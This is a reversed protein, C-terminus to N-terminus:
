GQNCTRLSLLESAICGGLDQNKIHIKDLEHEELECREEAKVEGAKDNIRVTSQSAASDNVEDMNIDRSATLDVVSNLRGENTLRIPETV